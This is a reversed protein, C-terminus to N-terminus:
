SGGVNQRRYLSRDATVCYRDRQQQFQWFNPNINDPTSQLLSEPVAPAPGPVFCRHILQRRRELDTPMFGLRSIAELNEICVSGLMYSSYARSREFCEHVSATFWSRREGNVAMRDYRPDAPLVAKPPEGRRLRLRPLLAASVTAAAACEGLFGLLRSRAAQFWVSDNGDESCLALAANAAQLRMLPTLDANEAVLILCAARLYSNDVDLASRRLIHDLQDSSRAGGGRAIVYAERALKTTPSAPESVIFGDQRLERARDRKCAFLNLLLADHRDEKSFPVLCNIGPVLRYIDYELEVLADVIENNVRGDHKYEFMILPSSQQLLQLGGSVVQTEYGEADLKIFDVADFGLKKACYDLTTLDVAETRAIARDSSEVDKVRNMESNPENTLLVEGLNAGLAANVATVNSLQNHDISRWLYNFTTRCPEFAWVGGEVGVRQALLMTYVGHNAGVDIARMGPRIWASVFDIETEFWREQELLVYPTLLDIRPPVLLELEEHFRVIMTTEAHDFGAVKIHTAM